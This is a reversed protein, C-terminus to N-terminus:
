AVKQRYNQIQTINARVVAKPTRLNRISSRGGKHLTAAFLYFLCDHVASSPHDELQPNLLTSVVGRQLFVKDLFVWMRSAQEPSLVIRFSPSRQPSRFTSPHIINPHIELLHSTPIHVPNPQGLNSVTPPLKHTRYHFKKDLQLGTLKQLHVRCWPTLLYTIIARM